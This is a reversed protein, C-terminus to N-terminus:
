ILIYIFYYVIKSDLQCLKPQNLANEFIEYKLFSTPNQKINKKQKGAYVFSGIRSRESIPVWQALLANM